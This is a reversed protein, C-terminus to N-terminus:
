FFKSTAHDLISVHLKRRLLTIFNGNAIDNTQLMQRTFCEFRIQTWTILTDDLRGIQDQFSQRLRESFARFCGPCSPFRTGHRLTPNRTGRQSSCEGARPTGPGSGAPQVGPGPDPSQPVTDGTTGTSTLPDGPDGHGQSKLEAM